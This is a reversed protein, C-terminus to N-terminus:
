LMENVYDNHGLEVQKFLYFTYINMYCSQFHIMCLDTTEKATKSNPESFLIDDQSFLPPESPEIMMM